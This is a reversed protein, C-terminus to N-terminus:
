CETLLLIAFLLGTFTLLHWFSPSKINFITASAFNKFVILNVSFTDPNQLSGYM